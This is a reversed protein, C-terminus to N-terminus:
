NVSSCFYFSASLYNMRPTFGSEPAPVAFFFFSRSSRWIDCKRISLVSPSPVKPFTLNPMWVMVCSFTAM